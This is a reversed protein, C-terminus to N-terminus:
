QSSQTFRHAMRFFAEVPCACHRGRNWARSRSERQCHRHDASNASPTTGADIAPVNPISKAAVVVDASLEM